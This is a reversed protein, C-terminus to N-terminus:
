HSLRGHQNTAGITKTIFVKGNRIAVKAKFGTTATKVEPEVITYAFNARNCLLDIYGWTRNGVPTKANREVYIMRKGKNAADRTDSFTVAHNNGLQKIAFAIAQPLTDSPKGKFRNRLAPNASKTKAIM